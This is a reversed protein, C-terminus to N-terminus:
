VSVSNLLLEYDGDFVGSGICIEIADEMTKKWLKYNKKYFYQSPEPFRVILDTFFATNELVKSLELLLFLNHIDICCREVATTVVGEELYPLIVSVSSSIM